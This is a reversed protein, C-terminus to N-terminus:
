RDARTGAMAAIRDVAALCAEPRSWQPAHGAGQLTILEAAPIAAALAQAHIRPSVVADRDPTIIITPATIEPYRPAQATFEANTAVVDQANAVFQSPRFLLGLGVRQAYDVPPQAPAFGAPVGSQGMPPGVVPVFLWAFAAGLVPTAGLEAHWANGGPYPHSAPALLVLGAVLDPRDLALRLATASGLSQALVIVPSGGADEIVQAALRAQVELRQAQPARASHGIGPRDMALVRYTDRLGTGLSEYLDRANVSAGHILLVTGLTEGEPAGSDLVHVRAGQASVFRGEAPWQANAWLTYGASFACLGGFLAALSWALITLRKM